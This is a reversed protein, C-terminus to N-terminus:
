PKKGTFGIRKMWEIDELYKKDCVTWLTDKKLRDICDFWIDEQQEIWDLQELFKETQHGETIVAIGSDDCVLIPEDIWTKYEKYQEEGRDSHRNFCGVPVLDHCWIPYGEKILTHGDRLNGHCVIAQVNKYLLLYKSVLSGFAAREEDHGHVLVISDEPVDVLDKHIWWNSEDIIHVVHAIGVAYSNSVLPKANIYYEWDKDLIDLIETTSIHNKKIKEVIKRQIENM